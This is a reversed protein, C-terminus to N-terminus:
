NSTQVAGKGPRFLDITLWVAQAVADFWFDSFSGFTWLMVGAFALSGVNAMIAPGVGRDVTRSLIWLLFRSVLFTPVLAGIFYAVVAM